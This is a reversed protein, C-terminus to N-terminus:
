AAPVDRAHDVVLVFLDNVNTGTPGTVVADDVATLAERSNHRLLAARLDVGADRARSATFGDVLGGAVDTGGDAGDTDLFLAAVRDEPRLALAAAIAAEQNPGGSGTAAADLRSVTGEGGCGVIACPPRFPLGRRSSERALNALIRGIERAEGELSTSLVIPTFARTTALAAMADCAVAGTTLMVSQIGADGIQPSEGDRARLHSRVSEAVRPWLGYGELIAVADDCDSTDRVTPDTIVDFPDMAVDSVTLNIVRAPLAAAALRGGKIQSVHKRVTNIEAIPMGSEILLRHLERKDTLSVGPPPLCALASSGGSFCALVIDGEEARRARELLRQAAAASRASPLPHDSVLVEIHTLREEHGPPVVVVGGNLRDGLVADLAKAIALSAKGAGLVVLDAEPALHHPTGDVLLNTGDLAVAGETARGPHCAAVGVSALELAVSRLDHLREGRVEGPDCLTLRPVGNASLDEPRLVSGSM